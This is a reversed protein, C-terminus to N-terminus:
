TEPQVSCYQQLLHVYHQRYILHARALFPRFVRKDELCCHCVRATGTSTFRSLRKKKRKLTVQYYYYYSQLERAIWFSITLCTCQYREFFTEYMHILEFDTLRCYIVSPQKSSPVFSDDVLLRINWANNKKISKISKPFEFSKIKM